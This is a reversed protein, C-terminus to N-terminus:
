HGRWSPSQSYLQIIRLVGLTFKMYAYLLFWVMGLINEEYSFDPWDNKFSPSSLSDKVQKYM